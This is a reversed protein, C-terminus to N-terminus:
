EHKLFQLVVANFEDPQDMVVAHRSNEIVKLTANPMAEAYQSKVSVDTYDMDSAVVLTKTEIEKFSDGLGWNMLTVFSQIYDEDDNSKCRVAFENRLQMQSDLPFMKESIEDALTALGDERITKLRSELMNTGLTGLDNFNPVSNVIVMKDVLEPFSYALQFAIAGGMSFGIVSAKEVHLAKLFQRVDETMTAVGFEANYMRSAGHGRLDLALVRYKKSFVPIQFNWDKISSGLGHLLLITEGHGSDIYNIDINNVLIRPM